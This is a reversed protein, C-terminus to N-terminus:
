PQSPVGGLLGSYWLDGLPGEPLIDAIHPRESLRQFSVGNEDKNAFVIEEPHEKFLELFYPSHTTAVVQTPQRRDDHSEPFALRYISDQVRRLLRPHIGADPHELGVLSPPDPMHALTLLTLAFRTGESLDAARIFLGDRKRRLKISKVGPGQDFRVLDFEPIWSPLEANLADFRERTNDQLNDLVGALGGGSSTLQVNTGVQVPAAIASPELAFVRIGTTFAQLEAPIGHGPESGRHTRNEKDWTLRIYNNPPASDWYYQIEVPPQFSPADVSVVGDYEKTSPFRGLEQANSSLLSLAQLVTSKGSGNAGAIITVRSLPLRTDKLVRFNQFRIYTLM